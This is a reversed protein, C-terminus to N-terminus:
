FPLMAVAQHDCRQEGLDIRSLQVTQGTVFRFSLQQPLPSDNLPHNAGVVIEEVAAEFFGREFENVNAHERLLNRFQWRRKRRQKEDSIAQSLLQHLAQWRHEDVAPVPQNQCSDALTQLTEALHLLQTEYLSPNFASESSLLFSRFFDAHELRLTRYAHLFAAEIHEEHVGKAAPCAAKGQHVYGACLWVNQEYKTGSQWRRRVLARGCFGCRLLSSFSYLRSYKPRLGSVADPTSRIRLLDQVREFEDKGIIAEHHDPIQRVAREEEGPISLMGTYKENKLITLVSAEYWNKKGRKTRFGHEMLEKKIVFAGAGELYRRFIFRVTEAEVPNIRISKTARDYDYGLCGSFGVLGGRTKATRAVPEDDSQTEPLPLQRLLELVLEGEMELTNIMEKEFLIAIGSAKLMGIYKLTDLLNDAFHAISQTIIMDIDGNLCDNILRQLSEPQHSPQESEREADAYIDVLEWAPNIRSIRDYYDRYFSIEDKGTETEAKMKHLRCYAAIRLHPSFRRRIRDPDSCGHRELTMRIPLM